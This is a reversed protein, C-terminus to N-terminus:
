KSFSINWPISPSNLTVVPLSGRLILQGIDYDYAQGVIDIGKDKYLMSLQSYANMSHTNGTNFEGVVHYTMFKMHKDLIVEKCLIVIFNYSLSNRNSIVDKHAIAIAHINNITLTESLYEDELYSLHNSLDSDNMIMSLECPQDIEGTVWSASIGFVKSLVHMVSPTLSTLLLNKNNIANIPFNNRDYADILTKIHLQAVRHSEFILNFRDCVIGFTSVTPQISASVVANLILSIISQSSLNLKNAHHEFFAATRENPRYTTPEIKPKTEIILENLVAEPIPDSFLTNLLQNVQINKLESM